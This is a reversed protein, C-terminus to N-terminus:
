SLSAEAKEGGIPGKITKEDMPDGPQQLALATQFKELDADDLSIFADSYSTNKWTKYCARATALKTELQADSLEEFTKLTKRDNSNVSKNAMNNDMKFTTM